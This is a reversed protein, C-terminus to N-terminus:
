TEVVKTSLGAINGSLTQGVIYVDIEIRGLRYVTANILNSKITQVLAQFRTVMEKEEDGHWDEPTTAVRFFDDVTVIEVLTDPCHNTQQLVMESTIAGTVEWTFVEFGEESESMMLLGESIQKLQNIVERHTMEFDHPSYPTSIDQV